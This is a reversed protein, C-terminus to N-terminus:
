YEFELEFNSNHLQFIVSSNGEQLGSVDFLVEKTINSECSESNELSLRLTHKPPDSAEPTGSDILQVTWSDGNCGKSAFIVKLCDGDQELGRAVLAADNAGMFAAQDVIVEEGCPGTVGDNNGDDNKSCGLFPGLLVLGIFLVQQRM